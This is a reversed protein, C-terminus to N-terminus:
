RPIDLTVWVLRHDSSPPPWGDVLDSGGQGPGPWYVGADRVQLAASPLVYDVRLIGDAGRGFDATDLDPLPDVLLPNLRLANIASPDSDGAAPDSNLDGMVVFKSGPKLPGHVGEDDYIYGAKSGGGIYDNVLRIEDHNRRKNRKEPGDFVPPAPHAAIPPRLRVWAIRPVLSLQAAM